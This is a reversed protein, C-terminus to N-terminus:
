IKSNQYQTNIIIYHPKRSKYKPTQKNRDRTNTFFENTIRKTKENKRKENSHVVVDDRHVTLQEALDYYLVLEVFYVYDNASLQLYM